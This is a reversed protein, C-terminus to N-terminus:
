PPKSRVSYAIVNSGTSNMSRATYMISEVLATANKPRCRHGFFLRHSGTLTHPGDAGRGCVRLRVRPRRVAIEETTQPQLYKSCMLAQSLLVTNNYGAYNYYANVQDSFTDLPTACIMGYLNCPCPPVPTNYSVFGQIQTEGGIYTLSELGASAACWWWWWGPVVACLTAGRM